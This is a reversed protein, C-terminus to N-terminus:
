DPLIDPGIDDDDFDDKNGGATKPHSPQTISLESLLPDSVSM